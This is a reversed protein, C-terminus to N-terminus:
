VTGEIAGEEIWRRYLADDYTFSLLYQAHGSWRRDVIEGITWTPMEVASPMSADAEALGCGTLSALVEEGVSFRFEAARTSGDSADETEM